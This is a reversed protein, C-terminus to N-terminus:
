LPWPLSAIYLVTQVQMEESVKKVGAQNGAQKHFEMRGQLICPCGNLSNLSPPVVGTHNGFHTPTSVKLTDIQPKMARMKAGARIGKFILPAVAARITLTCCVIVAWYPLGAYIHLGEVLRECMVVPGYGADTLATQTTQWM